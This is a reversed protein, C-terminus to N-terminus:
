KLIIKEYAYLNNRWIYYKRLHFKLVRTFYETMVYTMIHKTLAPDRAGADDSVTTNGKGGTHVILM